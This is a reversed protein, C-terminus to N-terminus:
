RGSEVAELFLVVKDDFPMCARTVRHGNSLDHEAQAEAPANGAVAGALARGWWAVPHLQNACSPADSLEIVGIHTDVCVRCACACGCM